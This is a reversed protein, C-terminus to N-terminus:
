CWWHLQSCHLHDTLRGSGPLVGSYCRDLRRCVLRWLHFLVLAFAALGIVSYILPIGLITQLALGGLYLVSTLNVFIYLGIWFVALITKLNKNFRKEVFEPITYIGKDIFIPLFRKNVSLSLRLQRCGSTLPLRWVLRTAPAQCVLLNNLQFIPQM